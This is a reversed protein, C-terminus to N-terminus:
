PIMPNPLPMWFMPYSIIVADHRSERWTEDKEKWFGSTVGGWIQGHFRQFIIVHTGDKPATEMTQWKSM